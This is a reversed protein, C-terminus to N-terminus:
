YASEDFQCLRVTPICECEISCKLCKITMRCRHGFDQM